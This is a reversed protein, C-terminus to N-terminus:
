SQEKLRGGQKRRPMAVKQKKIGHEICMVPIKVRVSSKTVRFAQSPQPQMSPKEAAAGPLRAAGTSPAGGRETGAGSCCFSNLKM